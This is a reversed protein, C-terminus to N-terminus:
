NAAEHIEATDSTTSISSSSFVDKCFRGITQFSISCEPQGTFAFMQFVHVMSPYAKWTIDVGAAKCKQCFEEIQDHLVEAEGFEVLMKPLCALEESPFCSPNIDMWDSDGRYFEAFIEALDPPLYDRKLNRKWSDSQTDQLNVWPSLLVGGAPLPLGYRKASLMTSLVLTGGASDGAFLIKSPCVFQLLWSYASLCDLVTIPQPYEPPRRYEVALIAADTAEALHYLLDRHTGTNCLCFAGGHFYLIYSLSTSSNTSSLHVPSSPNSDSAATAQASSGISAIHPTFQTFIPPHATSYFWEGPPNKSKKCAINQPLFPLWKPIKTDTILRISKLDRPINFAATRLVTVSTKFLVNKRPGSKGKSLGQKSDRQNEIQEDATKEIQHEAEQEQREQQTVSLQKQQVASKISFTSVAAMVSSMSSSMLSSTRTAVEVISSALMSSAKKLSHENEGNLDEVESEKGTLVNEIEVETESGEMMTENVDVEAEYVNSDRFIERELEPDEESDSSVIADSPNESPMNPGSGVKELPADRHLTSHSASDM